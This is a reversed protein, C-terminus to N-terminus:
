QDCPESISAKLREMEDVFHGSALSIDRRVIVWDGFLAEWDKQLSYVDAETGSHFRRHRCQVGWIDILRAMGDLFPAKPQRSVPVLATM